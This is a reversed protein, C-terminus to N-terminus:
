TSHALMESVVAKSFGRGAHAHGAHAVGRVAHVQLDESTGSTSSTHCSSGSATGEYDSEPDSEFTM